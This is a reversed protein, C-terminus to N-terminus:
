RRMPKLEVRRNMARGKETDNSQVPHSSGFGKATLRNASVGKNVLYNLVAQARALSLKENLAVSGKSDTHGQIEVNLDYAEKIIDATDNLMNYSRSQIVAKGTQFHLNELVWCGLVNVTAGSPTNPCDDRFDVVGDGDTDLACGNTDVKVNMPTNVCNDRYDPVGDKDTDVACGALTVQVGEPTEPCSDRYDPVGDKDGDLACGREDVKAQKPTNPCHDKYDPVGDMDTDLACGKADVATDAPTEPCKDSDDYVGDGDTDVKTKGPCFYCQTGVGSIAKNGIQPHHQTFGGAKWSGPHETTTCAGLTLSLFGMGFLLSIKSVKM